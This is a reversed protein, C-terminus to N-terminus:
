AAPARGAQRLRVVGPASRGLWLGLLLMSTALADSTLGARSGVLANHTVWFAESALFCWRLAQPSRQLRGLASLMQGSQACLSPVGSWTAATLAFGGLITTGFVGLRTAKNRILVASAGQVIGAFCMASATLAGLLAYHSAFLTASACQLMLIRRRDRLLPWSTNIAVAALGLITALEPASLAAPM